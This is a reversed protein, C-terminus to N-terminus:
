LLHMSYQKKGEIKFSQEEKARKEQTCISTNVVSMNEKVSIFMVSLNLQIVM